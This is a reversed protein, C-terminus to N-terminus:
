QTDLSSRHVDVGHADYMGYPSCSTVRTEFSSGRRLAVYTTSTVSLGRARRAESSSLTGPSVDYQSPTTPRPAPAAARAAPAYKRADGVAGPPPSVGSSPTAAAVNSPVPATSPM